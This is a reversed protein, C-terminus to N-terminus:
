FTWLSITFSIHISCNLSMFLLEVSGAQVFRM